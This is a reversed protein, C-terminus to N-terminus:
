AAERVPHRFTPVRKVWLLLAQLHIAAIVKGTMFPHRAAAAALSAGSIERRELTMTSDFFTRGGRLCEMHVVLSRGPDTFRWDYASDMGHFPSVHFEKAFRYRHAGGAGEDSPAGLVYLHREGWPTNNVEAVIAAVRGDQGHCYFFSVPNFVYGWCRPYTLLRVPGHPRVGTRQAVLDRIRPALPADSGDLHDRSRFSFVNAREASWLWRGDFVRDIEDLDLWLQWVRYRFAHPVPEFRRHRVEGRFIASNM